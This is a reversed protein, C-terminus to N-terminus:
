HHLPRVPQKRLFKKYNKIKTEVIRMTENLLNVKLSDFINDRLQFSLDSKINKLWPKLTDDIEFNM